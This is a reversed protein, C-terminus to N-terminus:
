ETKREQEVQQVQLIRMDINQVELEEESDQIYSAHPIYIIHTCRHRM